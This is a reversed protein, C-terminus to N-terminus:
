AAAMYCSALQESISVSFSNSALLLEDEPWSIFFMEILKASRRRLQNFKQLNVKMNAQSM